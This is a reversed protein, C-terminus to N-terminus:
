RYEMLKRLSEPGFEVLQVHKPILERVHDLPKGAVAARLLGIVAGHCVVLACGKEFEPLTLLAARARLFIQRGTEGGHMSSGYGNILWDAYAEPYLRACEDFTRGQFRGFFIEELGPVTKPELGLRAGAIRATEWARSLTSSYVADFSIGLSIISRGLAAAQARGKENLPLDLRGQIRREANYETEGHRVLYLM